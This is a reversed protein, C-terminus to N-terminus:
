IVETKATPYFKDRYQKLLSEAVERAEDCDQIEDLDTNTYFGTPEPPTLRDARFDTGTQTFVSVKPVSIGLDYCVEACSKKLTEDGDVDVSLEHTDMCYFVIINYQLTPSVM